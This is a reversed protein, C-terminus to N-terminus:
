LGDSFNVVNMIAVLGIVTLIPGANTVGANPASIVGIFPLTIQKVAVGFHVVIVAALVQGALKILPPLDFRDDRAGVLPIVAAPFIAVGGLLPTSRESLGRERPEDIAGAARALRKTLPTLLATVFAAALFAYLADLETVHAM